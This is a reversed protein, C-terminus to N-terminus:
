TYRKNLDDENMKRHKITTITVEKIEDRLSIKDLETAKLFYVVNAAQM